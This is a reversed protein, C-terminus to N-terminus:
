WERPATLTRILEATVRIEHGRLWTVFYGDGYDYVNSYFERVLEVSAEGLVTLMDTWGQFEYCELIRPNEKAIDVLDVAREDL